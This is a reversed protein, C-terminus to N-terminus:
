KQGMAEKLVDEMKAMAIRRAKTRAPKLWPKPPQGLKGYELVQAKLANPVGRSDVSDGVGIKINWNGDRDQLPPTIGVANVLEGKSRSKYKTDKGVVQRLNQEAQDRIPKAGEELARKAVEDFGNGLKSIRELFDEPMSIQLKAM